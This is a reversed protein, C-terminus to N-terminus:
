SRREAPPLPPIAFSTGTFARYGGGPVPANIDVGPAAVDPKPVGASEYVASPDGDPFTQM